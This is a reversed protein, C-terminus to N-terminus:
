PQAQRSPGRDIHGGGEHAAECQRGILLQDRQKRAEFDQAQYYYFLADGFHLDRVVTPSLKDVEKKAAMAPSVFAPALAVWAGVIAAIQKLRSM